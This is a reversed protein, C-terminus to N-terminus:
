AAAATRRDDGAQWKEFANQTVIELAGDPLSEIKGDIFDVRYPGDGTWDYVMGYRRPSKRTYVWPGFREKPDRHEVAFQKQEATQKKQKKKSRETM